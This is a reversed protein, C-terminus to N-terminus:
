PWGQQVTQTDAGVVCRRFLPHTDLLGTIRAGIEARIEGERRGDFRRRFLNEYWPEDEDQDWAVARLAESGARPIAQPLARGSLAGWVGTWCRALALPHYGVGGTVLIRPAGDESRPAAEVVQSVVDTFLETSVNLKGLPDLALMDSGAQLVIADFDAAAQLAEWLRTFALRYESDNVSRPLPLNVANGLPGVDATGGGAFPYAYGTDMHISATVIRPDMAFAEEVGDGHHADIDLYLVRLGAQQLRMIGLVPDNFYCFGRAEHPRAHHMGGAPSFAAHGDLVAEAALISGAAATAPTSFVGPFYPNELNGLNHAKRYRDPVRGLAECRQMASVYDRTHFWELETSSARRCARYEAASIGGYSRILDLTLCVRPIGLPHNAGYSHRRYRAAGFFRTSWAAPIASVAPLAATECDLM